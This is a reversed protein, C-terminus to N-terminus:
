LSAFILNHPDPLQENTKIPHQKNLDWLIFPLMRLLSNTNAMHIPFKLLLWFKQRSVLGFLYLFLIFSIYPYIYM